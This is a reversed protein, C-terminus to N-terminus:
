GRGAAEALLGARLLDPACLPCRAAKEIADWVYAARLERARPDTVDVHGMSPSLHDTLAAAVVYTTGGAPTINRPGQRDTAGTSADVSSRAAPPVESLTLYSARDINVPASM